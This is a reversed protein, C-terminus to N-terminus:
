KPNNKPDQTPDPDLHSSPQPHPRPRTSRVKGVCSLEICEFELPPLFPLSPVSRIKMPLFLFNVLYRIWSLGQGIDILGGYCALRSSISLAGRCTRKRWGGPGLGLAFLAPVSTQSRYESGTKDKPVYPIAKHTRPERTLTQYKITTNRLFSRSEQIKPRIQHYFYRSVIKSSIYTIMLISGRQVRVRMARSRPSLTALFSISSRGGDRYEERRKERQRM